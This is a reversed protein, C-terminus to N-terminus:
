RPTSYSLHPRPPLPVGALIAAPAENTLWEQQASIGPLVQEADLLARGLDPHRLLHDHADSALDHVLGERLIELTFSRVLGGFDGRLSGTCISCLFGEDVLRVLREPEQQFLPAREPHALVISEGRAQIRRLLLDFDGAGPSLPCELLLYPGGGLRLMHLQEPSLDALRSIAIEGGTIVHVEIGEARLASNLAAARESVHEPRVRWHNDIHPTAVLTTSGAAAAVAAMALAEPMSGPGDDIGPLVHCHLDIV